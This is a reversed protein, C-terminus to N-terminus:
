SLPLKPATLRRERVRTKPVRFRSDANVSVLCVSLRFIGSNLPLKSHHESNAFSLTSELFHKRPFTSRRSVGIGSM